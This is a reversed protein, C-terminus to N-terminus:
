VAAASRQDAAVVALLDGFTPNQYLVTLALSIGASGLENCFHIAALSNGGALFFNDDAAPEADLVTRWATTLAQVATDQQADNSDTVRSQDPAPLAAKDVKGNTTLPVVTLETFTSPQMYHPLFRALAARLDAPDIDAGVYFADIRSLAHEGDTNACVVAADLIGPYRMICDRIEDLEIRYGNVKVQGDIRGLHELTGDGLTRGLDGSRYWRRGDPGAVFRTATLVPKGIYYQALGAGAVYIEGPCGVPAPRLDAGLVAFEWGSIAAGVAGPRRMASSKTVRHATVHVTTETIGYMDVVQCSRRPHRDLWSSVSHSQMAEGGLVVLRVAALRESRADVADLHAFASPTQNLVTVRHERLLTHFRGPDRAVPKDVVVVRGGTVLAGWIEWVSFDFAPSHFASWVDASTLAFETRLADFLALVSRHSVVTGKPVGTTGSTYIAYAPLLDSLAHHPRQASSAALLDSATTTNDALEAAIRPEAVVLRANADTAVHRIREIPFEVDVPVYAAGCKWIGLAVAILEPGRDIALVVFDGPRIGTAHLHAAVTDSLQDLDAYSLSNSEHVVATATPQTTAAAVIRLELRDGPAGNSPAEPQHRTMALDRLLTDPGQIGSHVFAMSEALAATFESELANGSIRLRLLAPDSTATLTLVVDHRSDDDQFFGGPTATADILRISRLASDDQVPALGAAIQSVSHGPTLECRLLEGLPAADDAPWPAHLRVLDVAIAAVDLYRACVAACAVVVYETRFSDRIPLDVIVSGAVSDEIPEGGLERLLRLAGTLDACALLVVDVVGDSYQTCSIRAAGPGPLPHSMQGRVLQKAAASGAAFPVPQLWSRMLTPDVGIETRLRDVLETPDLPQHLRVAGGVAQHIDM